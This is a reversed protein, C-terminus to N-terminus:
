RFILLDEDETSKTIINKIKTRSGSSCVVVFFAYLELEGVPMFNGVWGNTGKLKNNIRDRLQKGRKNVREKDECFEPLLVIDFLMRYPLLKEKKIMMERTLIRM